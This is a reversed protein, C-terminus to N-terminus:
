ELSPLPLLFVWWPVRWRGGGGGGEGGRRWSGDLLGGDEGEVDVFGVEEGEIRVDNM